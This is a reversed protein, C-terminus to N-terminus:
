VESLFILIGAVFAFITAIIELIPAAEWGIDSSSGHNKKVYITPQCIGFYNSQTGRSVDAGM